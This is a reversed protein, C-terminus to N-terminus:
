SAAKIMEWTIGLIMYFVDGRALYIVGDLLKILEPRVM